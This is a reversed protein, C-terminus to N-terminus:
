PFNSLLITLARHMHEKDKCCPNSGPQRCIIFSYLSIHWVVEYVMFTSFHLVMFANCYRCNHRYLINILTTSLDSCIVLNYAINSLYLSNCYKHWMKACSISFCNILFFTSKYTKKVKQFNVGALFNLFINSSSITPCIGVLCKVMM